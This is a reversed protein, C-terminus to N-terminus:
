STCTQQPQGVTSPSSPQPPQRAATITQAGTGQADCIAKRRGQRRTHAGTNTRSAPLHIPICAFSDPPRTNNSVIVCLGREDRGGEAWLYQSKTRVCTPKGSARMGGGGGSVRYLRSSATAASSAAAAAALPTGDLWSDFTPPIPPIRNCLPHTLLDETCEPSPLCANCMLRAATCTSVEVCAPPVRSAARQRMVIAHGKSCPM